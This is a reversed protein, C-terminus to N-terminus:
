VFNAVNNTIIYHSKCAFSYNGVSPTFTIGKDSYTMQWHQAPFLEFNFPLITREGCGCLCLHVSTKCIKSVYIIGHELKEPITDVFEPAVTVKKLTKM